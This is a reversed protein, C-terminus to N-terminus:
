FRVGRHYIVKKSGSVPPTEETRVTWWSTPNFYNYQENLIVIQSEVKDMIRIEDIFGPWKRDYNAARGNGIETPGINALSKTTTNLAKASFYGCTDLYMSDTANNVIFVIYNWLNATVKSIVAPFASGDYLRFEISYTGVNDSYISYPSISDTIIRCGVLPTDPKIFCKYTYSETWGDFDIGSYSDWLFVRGPNNRVRMGKELWGTTDIAVATDPIRIGDYNNSTADFVTDGNSETFHLVCQYNNAPLFVCESSDKQWGGADAHGYIAVSDGDKDLTPKLLWIDSDGEAETWLETTGDNDTLTKKKGEFHAATTVLSLWKLRLVANNWDSGGLSDTDCILWQRYSYDSCWTNYFKNFLVTGSKNTIKLGHGGSVRGLEAKAKKFKILLKTTGVSIILNNLGGKIILNKSVETRTDTKKGVSAVYKSILATAKTKEALTLDAPIVIKSFDTSSKGIGIYGQRYTLYKVQGLYYHKVTLVKEKLEGQQLGYTKDYYFGKECKIVTSDMPSLYETQWDGTLDRQGYIATDKVCPISDCWVFVDGMSLSKVSEMSDLTLSINLTEAKTSTLSINVPFETLGSIISDCKVTLANLLFLLIGM